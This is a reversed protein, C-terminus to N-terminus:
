PTDEQVLTISQSSVAEVRGSISAHLRAGLANPAIEAIPQGRRVREGVEV